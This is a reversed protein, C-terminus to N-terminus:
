TGNLTLPGFWVTLACGLALHPGFAFRTEATIWDEHRRALAFIRLVLVAMLGSACALLILVPLASIGVWITAAALFKIDGMGLGARGRLAQYGIALIWGSMAVALSALVAVVVVVVGDPVLSILGTLSVIANLANPIIQRTLDYWVVGLLLPSLALM